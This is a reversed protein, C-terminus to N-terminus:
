ENAWIASQAGSLGQLEVIVDTYHKNQTGNLYWSMDYSGAGTASKYSIGTTTGYGTQNTIETQSGHMTITQNVAVHIFDVVLSNAKVGYITNTMWTGWAWNSSYKNATAGVKGVDKFHWTHVNGYTVTGSLSIALTNAGTAANAIGWYTAYGGYTPETSEVLKTLSVGNYTISTAYKGDDTQFGVLMYRNADTIGTISFNGSSSSSIWHPISGSVYSPITM